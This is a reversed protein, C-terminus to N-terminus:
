PRCHVLSRASSRSKEPFSGTPHVQVHDRVEQVFADVHLRPALVLVVKLQPVCWQLQRCSHASVVNYRQEQLARRAQVCSRFVPACCNQLKVVDDVQEDLMEALLGQGIQIARM